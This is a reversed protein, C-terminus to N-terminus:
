YTYCALLHLKLIESYFVFCVSTLWDLIAHEQHLLMSCIVSEYFLQSISRLSWAANALGQLSLAVMPKLIIEMAHQSIPTSPIASALHCPQIHKVSSAPKGQRTGTQRHWLWSGALGWARAQKANRRGIITYPINRTGVNVAASTHCLRKWNSNKARISVPLM